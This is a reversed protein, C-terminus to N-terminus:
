KRLKQLKRKERAIMHLISKLNQVRKERPARSISFDLEEDLLEIGFFPDFLHCFFLNVGAFGQLVATLIVGTNVLFKTQTPISIFLAIFTYIYGPETNSTSMKIVQVFIFVALLAVLFLVLILNKARPSEFKGRIYAIPLLYFIIVDLSYLCLKWFLTRTTATDVALIELLFMQFFLVSCGFTIGFIQENLKSKLEIDHFLKRKLFYHSVAMSIFFTTFTMFLITLM